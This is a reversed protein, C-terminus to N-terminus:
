GRDATAPIASIETKGERNDINFIVQDCRYERCVDRFSEMVFERFLDRDMKPNRSPHFSALCEYRTCMRTLIEDQQRPDWLLFGAGPAGERAATERDEPLKDTSPYGERRDQSRARFDQIMDYSVARIIESLTTEDLKLLGDDLLTKMGKEIALRRIQEVEKGKSLAKSIDGDVIFIESILTRGRYGTFGCVECGKGEYFRLHSPFRDFLLSWEDRDPVCERSCATCIKRILRQALVCTLSSAIQSREVNLDLLRSVSSVSDNTHITSLLLHGTQTADFSIKATEEDRIEGILIVDPDMRLFSRLLRAFTLHIKPNVQAQMIGPFNYEIPDEATIIKILPNYIYKLAAYLTTTKGSGTPGSVLIMGASSRLMMRFPELVHSSHYLMELGVNAKRPDLIRVTVNEGTIAKCTAVRFDLDFKKRKAKDYYTIRFGGDQPLRKEAIDLNSMIKIRSIVAGAKEQIKSKLWGKNVDQLVGDIRYRLKTGELDQEFHIDSAGQSVGYKIIFNVLEEAEIDKVGQVPGEGARAMDEDLELEMFDVGQLSPAAGPGGGSRAPGLRKGYLVDFLENFKEETILQCSIREYNYLGKLDRANQINEPRVVALTLHRRDLSVPIMLNREAYKGSIITSLTKKDQESYVFGELRSFPLNSQQSLAQQLQESTIKKQRLLIEGLSDTGKQQDKLARDLSARDIHGQKLLIEGLKFQKRYKNLVYYLDVPHILEMECLIEGLFRIGKQVKLAKELDREGLLGLHVALEGLRPANMQERLLEQLEDPGIVGENIFVEGILQGPSQRRLCSELQSKTVYGREMAMIGILRRLEHHNLIRDLDVDSILGMKVLIRGLPQKSLLVERRQLDLAKQVDEEKLYGERVLLEGIKVKPIAQPVGTQQSQERDVRKQTHM